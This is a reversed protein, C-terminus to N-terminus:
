ILVGPSIEEVSSTCNFILAIPLVTALNHWLQVLARLDRYHQYIWSSLTSPGVSLDNKNSKSLDSRRQLCLKLFLIPTDGEELVDQLLEAVGASRSLQQQTSKSFM